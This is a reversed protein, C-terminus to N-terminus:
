KVPGWFSGPISPRRFSPSTCRAPPARKSSCGGDRRLDDRIVNLSLTATADVNSVDIDASMSLPSSVSPPDVFSVSNGPMGTSRAYSSAGDLSLSYTTVLDAVPSVWEVEYDLDTGDPDLTMSTSAGLFMSGSSGANSVFIDGQAGVMRPPVRLTGKANSPMLSKGAADGSNTAGPMALDLNTVDTIAPQAFQAWATFLM